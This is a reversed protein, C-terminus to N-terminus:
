QTGEAIHTFECLNDDYVARVRRERPAAPGTNRILRYLAQHVGPRAKREVRLYAGRLLMRCYAAADEENVIVVDTTSHVALDRPTFVMLQRASRWMNGQPTQNGVPSGDPRRFLPQVGIDGILRYRRRRKEGVHTFEARRAKVWEGVIERVMKADLGCESALQYCSFEGLRVATNWAHHYKAETLRRRTM